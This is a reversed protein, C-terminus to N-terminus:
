SIGASFQEDLWDLTRRNLLSRNQMECHDGAGEAASFRMLTKPCTLAELFSPARAGLSDNEAMTMLTPCRILEARGDMWHYCPFPISPIIAWGIRISQRNDLAAHLFWQPRHLIFDNALTSFRGHDYMLNTPYLYPYGLSGHGYTDKSDDHIAAQPARIL